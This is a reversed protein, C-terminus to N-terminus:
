EIGMILRNVYLELQEYKRQAILENAYAYDYKEVKKEM